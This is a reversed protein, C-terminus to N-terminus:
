AGGGSLMRRMEIAPPLAGGGAVRTMKIVPPISGEESGKGKGDGAGNREDDKM